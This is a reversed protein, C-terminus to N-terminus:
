KSGVIHTTEAFVLNAVTLNRKKSEQREKKKTEEDRASTAGHV